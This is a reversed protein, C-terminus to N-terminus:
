KLPYGEEISGWGSFRQTGRYLNNKFYFINHVAIPQMTDYCWKICDSVRKSKILALYLHSIIQNASHQLVPQPCLSSM